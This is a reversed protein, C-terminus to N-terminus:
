KKPSSARSPAPSAPAAPSPSGKAGATKELAAIVETTFDTTDRAFLVPPSGSSEATGSKDLVVDVGKAGARAVVADIIEKLIGERLRLAHQQLQEERALRFESIERQLNQVDTLKEERQQAKASKADGTLGGPADLQKGMLDLEEIAKKYTQAREDFEKNAASTAEKVKVEAERMKSYEKIVRNVDVVGIKMQTQASASGAIM